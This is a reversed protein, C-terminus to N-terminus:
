QSLVDPICLSMTNYNFQINNYLINSADSWLIQPLINSADTKTRLKLNLIMM